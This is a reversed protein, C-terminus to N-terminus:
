TEESFFLFILIEREKRFFTTASKKKKLSYIQEGESHSEALDQPWLSM